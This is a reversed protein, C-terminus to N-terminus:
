RSGIARLEVRASGVSGDVRNGVGLVPGDPDCPAPSDPHLTAM